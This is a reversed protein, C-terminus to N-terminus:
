APSTKPRQIYNRNPKEGEHLPIAAGVAGQQGRGRQHLSRYFRGVLLHDREADKAGANQGYCKEGRKEGEKNEEKQTRSADEQLIIGQAEAVTVEVEKRSNKGRIKIRGVTPKCSRLWKRMRKCLDEAGEVEMRRLGGLVRCWELISKAHKAWGGLIGAEEAASSSPLQDITNKAEGIIKLPQDVRFTDALFKKVRETRKIRVAFSRSAWEELSMTKVNAFASDGLVLKVRLLREARRLAERVQKHQQPKKTNKMPLIALALRKGERGVSSAILFRFFHKEKRQFIWDRLKKRMKAGHIEIELLDLATHVPEKPFVNNEEGM